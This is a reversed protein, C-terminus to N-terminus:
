GPPPVALADVADAFEPSVHRVIARTIPTLDPTPLDGGYLVDVGVHFTRQDLKAAGALFAAQSAYGHLLVFL